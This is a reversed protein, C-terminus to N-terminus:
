LVIRDGVKMSIPPVLLTNSYRKWDTVPNMIVVFVMILMSHLMFHVDAVNSEMKMNGTYFRIMMGNQSMYANPNKM